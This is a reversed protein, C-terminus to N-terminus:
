YYRMYVEFLHSSSVALRLYRGDNEDLGMAEQLNYGSRRGVAGRPRPILNSHANAKSAKEAAIISRLFLTYTPLM